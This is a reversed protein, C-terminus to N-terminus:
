DQQKNLTSEGQNWRERNRVIKGWLTAARKLEDSNEIQCVDDAETRITVSHKKTSKKRAM